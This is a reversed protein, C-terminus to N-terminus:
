DFSVGASLYGVVTNILSSGSATASIVLLLRTQSSVPISLGNITGSSTNGLSVVGTLDPTLVVSAGAVPSFSNGSASNSYWQAKLTITTGVLSLAAVNSFIASISKIVGSRPMCFGYNLNIGTGGTLDVTTGTFGIGSISTGFGVLACTGELGSVLTTLTVPLASAYPIISNGNPLLSQWNGNSYVFDASQNIPINFGNLVSTFGGTSNNFITLRQGPNPAAPVSISITGTAVGTLRVMSVNSPITATNSSLAVVTERLTFGGNVDLTTGPTSTGIGTQAQALFTTLLAFCLITLNKM